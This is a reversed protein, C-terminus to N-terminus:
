TCLREINGVMGATPTYVNTSGEAMSLRISESRYSQEVRRVPTRPFHGLQVLLEGRVHIFKSLQM